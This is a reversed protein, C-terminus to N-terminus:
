FDRFETQYGVARLNKRENVFSVGGPGEDVGWSYDVPESKTGVGPFGGVVERTGLKNVWRRRIKKRRSCRGRGKM